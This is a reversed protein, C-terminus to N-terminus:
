FRSGGFDCKLCYIPTQPPDTLLSVGPEDVLEAGCKPCAIGNGCPADSPKRREMAERNHEELTKM